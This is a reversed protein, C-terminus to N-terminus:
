AGLCVERTRFSREWFVVRKRRRGDVAERVSRLDSSAVANFSAESGARV